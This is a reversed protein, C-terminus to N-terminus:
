KYSMTSPLLARDVSSSCWGLGLILLSRLAARGHHDRRNARAHDSIAFLEHGGAAHDARASTSPSCSAYWVPDIKLAALVAARRAYHHPHDLDDRLFM